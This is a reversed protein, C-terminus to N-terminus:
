EASQEEGRGPRYVALRARHSGGEDAILLRGDRALEIGEPQRHRRELPLRLASVLRGAPTLEALARQRAAVLLLSGGDAALAIGSPNFRRKGIRSAIERWPLEIGGDALLRREALSWAFVFLANDGGHAEKCVLLLRSRTPDGALGEIECREGLGTPHRAFELQAGDSGDGSEFIEGDSTVLYFSDGVIAIGEFDGRVVPSGLAFAKRLRGVDYDLEYIIAAEDAVAFLRGDAALALGSIENLRNPLRWQEMSDADLPYRSLLGADDAGAAVTLGCLALASWRVRPGRLCSAIM